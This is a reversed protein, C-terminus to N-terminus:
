WKEKHLNEREKIIARVREPDVYFVGKGSGIRKANSEPLKILIYAQSLSINLITHLQNVSVWGDPIEAKAKNLWEFFKEKNFELSKCKEKRILFGNKLGAVYLASATIPYGLEKCKELVDNLHM